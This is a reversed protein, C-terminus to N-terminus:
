PDRSGNLAQNVLDQLGANTNITNAASDPNRLLYLPDYLRSLTAGPAVDPPYERGQSDKHLWVRITVQRFRDRRLGGRQGATRERARSNEELTTPQDKLSYLYEDGAYMIPETTSPMNHKDDLYMLVLRNSMEMSALQRRERGNQAVMYNIAITVTATVMALIAVAAVVELISMGRAGVRGAAGPALSHSVVAPIPPTVRPM